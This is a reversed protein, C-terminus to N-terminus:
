SKKNNKDTNDVENEEVENVLFKNRSEFREIAGLVQDIFRMRYSSGVFKALALTKEKTSM